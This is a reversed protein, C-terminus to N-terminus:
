TLLWIPTLRWVLQMWTYGLKESSAGFEHRHTLWEGFPWQLNAMWRLMFAKLFFFLCLHLNLFMSCKTNWIDGYCRLQMSKATFNWTFSAHMDEARWTTSFTLSRVASLMSNSHRSFANSICNYHEFVPIWIRYGCIWNLIRFKFSLSLPTCIQLEPPCYPNTHWALESYARFIQPVLMDITWTWIQFHIPLTQM